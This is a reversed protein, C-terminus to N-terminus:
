KLLTFSGVMSWMVGRDASPLSSGALMWNSHRPQLEAFPARHSYRYWVPVGRAVDV